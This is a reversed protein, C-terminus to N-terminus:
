KLEHEPGAIPRVKAKCGGGTKLRLVTAGEVITGRPTGTGGQNGKFGDKLTTM